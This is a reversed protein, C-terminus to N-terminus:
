ACCSAICSRTVRASVGRPSRQRRRVIGGRTVEGRQLSWIVPRLPNQVCLPFKQSRSVQAMAWHAFFNDRRCRLLPVRGPPAPARRLPLARVPDRLCLITAPPLTGPPQGPEPGPLEAM